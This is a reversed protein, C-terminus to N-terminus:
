VLGAPGNAVASLQAGYGAVMVRGDFLTLCDAQHFSRLRTHQLRVRWRVRDRVAAVRGALKQLHRCSFIRLRGQCRRVVTHKVARRSIPARHAPSASTEREGLACRVCGENERRLQENEARLANNDVRLRETEDM